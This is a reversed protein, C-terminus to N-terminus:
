ADDGGSALDAFSLREPEPRQGDADRLQDRLRAMERFPLSSAPARTIERGLAVDLARLVKFIAEDLEHLAGHLRLLNPESEPLTAPERRAGIFAPLDDDM